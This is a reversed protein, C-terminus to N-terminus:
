LLAIRIDFLISKIEQENNAQKRDNYSVEWDDDISSVDVDLDLWDIRDYVDQMTKSLKMYNQTLEQKDLKELKEQLIKDM